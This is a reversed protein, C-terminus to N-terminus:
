RGPAFYALALEIEPTLFFPRHFLFCKLGDAVILAVLAIHFPALGSRSMRLTGHPRMDLFKFRIQRGKGRLQARLFGALQAQEDVGVVGKLRLGVFPNRDGIRGAVGGQGTSEQRLEARIGIQQIRHLKVVLRKRQPPLGLGLALAVRLAERRQQLADPVPIQEQREEDNISARSAFAPLRQAPKKM